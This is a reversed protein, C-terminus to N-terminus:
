YLLNERYALLCYTKQYFYKQKTTLNRTPKKTSQSAQASTGVTTAISTSMATFTGVAINEGFDQAGLYVLQEVTKSTASLGTALSLCNFTGGIIFMGLAQDSSYESGCIKATAYSTYVNAAGGAAYAIAFSGLVVPAGLGCSGMILLAADVGAGAIAGGIASQTAIDFWKSSDSETMMATIAGSIFGTVGGLATFFLNGSSDINGIPNNNCYACM